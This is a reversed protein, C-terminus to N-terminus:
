ATYAKRGTALAQDLYEIRDQGWFVEGNLVYAPVGVAGADIAEQTNRARIAATEPEDAAGMIEEANFGEARLHASLVDRDAINEENAWVAAFVREMYSLPDHGREILAIITHDALTPDTPWHKPKPNIPLGRYDAVRQLEILRYRQRVPPRKAPVVAGSNEFVAALNVPKVKLEAGHKRAVARLMPHGLYSFPSPSTMYYDISAPMTGGDQTRRFRVLRAFCRFSRARIRGIKAQRTVPILCPQLAM